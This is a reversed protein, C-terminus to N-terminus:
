CLGSHWLAQHALVQRCGRRARPHPRSPWFRRNFRYSFESLYDAGYERYNLSHFAGVVRPRHICGADTVAAFCNLGVSSAVTQPVLHAKAWRGIAELTFGSVPNLLQHLTHGCQNLSVAAVYPVKNESGRKAGGDAREGGLYADDLQIAGCLRHMDDQRAMAHNIKPLMLWATPYSVGLDRKHALTSLGSKAQSILHIALFWTTVPLMGHEMLSGATLPNSPSLRQV